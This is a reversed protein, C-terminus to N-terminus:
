DEKATYCCSRKNKIDNKNLEDRFLLDYLSLEEDSSFDERAYRKEEKNMSNALEMLNMFTKEINARDQETNYNTIIQQYREYYNIRGLNNFLMTKIRQQIVEELDKIVINKTKIREFERRLLDFDIASIDFKQIEECVKMTTSEILTQSRNNVNDDTLLLFFLRLKKLLTM